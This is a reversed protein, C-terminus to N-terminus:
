STTSRMVMADVQYRLLDAASCIRSEPGILSWRRHTPGIAVTAVGLMDSGIAVDAELKAPGLIAALHRADIRTKCAIDRLAM